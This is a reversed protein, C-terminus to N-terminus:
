AMLDVQGSARLPRYVPDEGGPSASSYNRGNQESAQQQRQWFRGGEGGSGARSDFRFSQADSRIGADALARSLEASDRRLMDLASASEAAVVARVTGRDDFSLKVEIAGLEVPNLRVRLEERGAKTARAIEVGMQHGIRGPQAHVTPHAPASAAPTPSTLTPAPSQVAPQVAAPPTQTAPASTSADATRVAEAFAASDPAQAVSVQATPNGAGTGPAALEAEAARQSGSLVPSTQLAAPTPATQGDAPATGDDFQVAGASGRDAVILPNVISPAAPDAPAPAPVPLGAPGAESAKSWEDDALKEGLAGSVGGSKPFRGGISRDAVPSVAVLPLNTAAPDQLAIADADGASSPLEDPQRAPVGRRAATPSGPDVPPLVISDALPAEAGDAPQAALGTTPM